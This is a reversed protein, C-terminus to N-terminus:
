IVANYCTSYLFTNICAFNWAPWNCESGAQLTSYTHLNIECGSVKHTYLLHVMHSKSILPRDEPSLIFFQSSRLLYSMM